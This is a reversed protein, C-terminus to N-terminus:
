SGVRDACFHGGARLEGGSSQWRGAFRNPAISTVHLAMSTGDFRLRDGQNADAGMRLTIETRPPSQRDWEIALVGPAAPNDRRVDGPSIAGVAALSVETGGFLPYRAGPTVPVPPPTTGFGRLRLRGATSRGAMPGGTAVLSLTFDGALEQARAGAPLEGEM